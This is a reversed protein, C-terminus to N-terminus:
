RGVRTVGYVSVTIPHATGGAVGLKGGTGIQIGNGTTNIDLVVTEQKALEVNAYLATTASFGAGQEDHWISYDSTTGSHGSANCIIIKTIETPVAAVLATTPTATLSAQFLLAGPAFSEM